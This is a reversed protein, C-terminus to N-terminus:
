SSQIIDCHCDCECLHYECIVSQSCSCGHEGNYDINCARARCDTCYESKYTRTSRTSVPSIINEKDLSRAFEIAKKKNIGSDMIVVLGCFHIGRFTIPETHFSLSSESAFTMINPMVDNQYQSHTLFHISMTKNRVIHDFGRIFQGYWTVSLHHSYDAHWDELDLGTKTGQTKIRRHSMIGYEDSWFDANIPRFEIDAFYLHSLWHGIVSGIDIFEFVLCLLWVKHAILSNLPDHRVEDEEESSNEMTVCEQQIYEPIYDSEDEEEEEDVCMIQEFSMKIGPIMTIERAEFFPRKDFGIAYRIGLLKLLKTAYGKCRYAKDVWIWQITDKREGHIMCVCPIYKLGYLREEQYGYRITVMIHRDSHFPEYENSLSQLLVKYLPEDIKILEQTSEDQQIM